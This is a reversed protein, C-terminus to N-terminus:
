RFVAKNRAITYLWTRFRTPHSLSSLRKFVTIWVEQQVDNAM